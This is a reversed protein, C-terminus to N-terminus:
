ISLKNGCEGCFKPINYRDSECCMKYQCEICIILQRGCDICLNDDNDDVDCLKINRLTEISIGMGVGIVEIIVKTLKRSFTINNKDNIFKAIDNIHIDIYTNIDCFILKSIGNWYYDIFHKKLKDLYHINRSDLKSVVNMIEKRTLDIDETTLHGKRYRLSSINFMGSENTIDSKFEKILNDLVLSFVDSLLLFNIVDFFEVLFDIDKVKIIDHLCVESNYLLEFVTSVTERQFKDMIFTEKDGIDELYNRYTESCKVLVKSHIMISGDFCTVKVDGDNEGHNYKDKWISVKKLLILDM